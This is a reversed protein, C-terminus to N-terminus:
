NELNSFFLLSFDQIRTTIRRIFKNSVIYLKHLLAVHSFFVPNVTSMHCTSTVASKQPSIQCMFNSQHCKVSSMKCTVNSLHCIVNKFLYLDALILPDESTQFWAFNSLELLTDIKTADLTHEMKCTVHQANIWWFSHHMSYFTYDRGFISYYFMCDNVM